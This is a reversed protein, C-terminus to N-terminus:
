SDRTARDAPVNLHRTTGETVSAPPMVIESTDPAPLESRRPAYKFTAPTPADANPLAVRGSRSRIVQGLGEGVYGLAPIIFWVWILYARPVYFFGLMFIILFAIGSFINELGKELTPEKAKRKSKKGGEKEQEEVEPSHTAVEILHGTMAQPVLRIDAGCSRCFKADELNRAGCNPCFM